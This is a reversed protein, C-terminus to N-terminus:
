VIRQDQVALVTLVMPVIPPMLAIASKMASEPGHQDTAAQGAQYAYVRIAARRM